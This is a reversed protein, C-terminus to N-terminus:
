AKYIRHQISCLYCPCKRNNIDDTVLEHSGVLKRLKAPIHWRISTPYWINQLQSQFRSVLNGLFSSFLFFFDNLVILVHINWM